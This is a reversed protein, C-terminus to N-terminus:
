QAAESARQDRLAALEILEFSTAGDAVELIGVTGLPSTGAIRGPGKPFTPSGPNVFLIGQKQVIVARHSSAFAVVDVSTGFKEAVVAAVDIGALEPVGGPPTPIPPGPPRALNHVAGVRVGELELVRTLGAVREGEAPTVHENGDGDMWVDRIAYVPAVVALRDLVGRALKERQGM